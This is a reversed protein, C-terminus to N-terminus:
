RLDDFAATLRDAPDSPERDIRVEFGDATLEAVVCDLRARYTKYHHGDLDLQQQETVLDHDTLRSLRDYVTSPAADLREAIDDAALEERYTLVLTARAYEDDLLAVVDADDADIAVVTSGEGSM